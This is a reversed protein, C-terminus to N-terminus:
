LLTLDDYIKWNNRKAINLMRRKMYPDQFHFHLPYNRGTKELWKLLEIFDGSHWFFIGAEDDLSIVEININRKEYYTILYIARDVNKVWYYDDYNPPRIEDDVWIRM